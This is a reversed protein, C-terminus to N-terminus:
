TRVNIYDKLDRRLGANKGYNKVYGARLIMQVDQSLGLNQQLKEKYPSTEIMTSIPQIAIHYKVCDYWFAQTKQGTAIWDSITQNSTIVFFGATNNVQNTLTKISQKAFTQSTANQHNTTLYYLSKMLFGLGLMDGSIGDQKEKSEQNSFRLWKNQEELFDKNKHQKTVANISDKRLYDFEESGKAYYSLGEYKKKLTSLIQSSIEKKQYKRKDTHRQKIIQIAKENVTKNKCKKYSIHAVQFNNATRPSTHELTVKYGYAEFSTKLSQLYFGISLYLERNNPDVVNLSRKKDLHVTLNNQKSDLNVKWSQTNHSSAAFSAYYLAHEIDSPVGKLSIDTKTNLPKGIMMLSSFGGILIMVLILQLIRILKRNM